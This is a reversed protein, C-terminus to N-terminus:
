KALELLQLSIIIIFFTLILLTEKDEISM